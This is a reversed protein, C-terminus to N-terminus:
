NSECDSSSTNQFSLQPQSRVLSAIQIQHIDFPFIRFRNEQSPDFALIFITDARLTPNVRRLADRRQQRVRTLFTVRFTSHFRDPFPSSPQYRQHIFLDCLLSFLSWVQQIRGDSFSSLVNPADAESQSQVSDLLLSVTTTFGRREAPIMPCVRLAQSFLRLFFPLPRLRGSSSCLRSSLNSSSNSPFRYTQRFFPRVYCSNQLM